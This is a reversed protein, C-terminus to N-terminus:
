KSVLTQCIPAKQPHTAPRTSLVGWCSLATHDAADGPEKDTHLGLRDALVATGAAIRGVAMGAAAAVPTHVAAVPTQVAVAALM